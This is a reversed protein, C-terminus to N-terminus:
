SEGKSPGFFRRNDSEFHYLKAEEIKLALLSALIIAIGMGVAPGVFYVWWNDWQGSIVAPGFSRAPNTSTGSIDAELPVMICYLFPIMAPTFKRIKRNAIFFCLAAVLAFTTIVEGLVAAWTSYSAGPATAGFSISEGLSGWLLLPLCGVVAGMLQALIYGACTKLDMKGMLRFGITVVPNVHAGSIKGIPSIAILAGVCGFLFGTVMQRLKYNPIYQSGPSNDGFMFIVLSLGFLLLLGTGLFEALYKPLPSEKRTLELNAVSSSPTGPKM